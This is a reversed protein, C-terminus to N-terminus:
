SCLSVSSCTVEAHTLMMQLSSGSELVLLKSSSMSAMNLVHKRSSSAASSRHSLDKIERSQRGRISLEIFMFITMGEARRHSDHRLARPAFPTLALAVFSMRSIATQGDDFPSACCCCCCCCCCSWCCCIFSPADKLLWHVKDHESGVQPRRASTCLSTSLLIRQASLMSLASHSSRASFCCCCCLPTIHRSDNSICRKMEFALSRIEDTRSCLLFLLGSCTTTM